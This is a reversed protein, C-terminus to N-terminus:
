FESVLRVHVKMSGFTDGEGAALSVGMLGLPTELRMGVGVGVLFAKATELRGGDIEPRQYYGGDM